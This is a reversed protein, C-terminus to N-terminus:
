EEEIVGIYPLNRYKQDFDLGYGVVFSDPIVFGTYEVRADKIERRAPKDLLVATKVSKAGHEEFVKRLMTLTRGSDIIDEAILVHRGSVDEDVDKKFKLFGTSKTGSGYSSVSVFDMTVPLTLRKVLDCTFFVGGKLVGVVLVPEGNYDRNIEEAMERIRKVITEEDYLVTIRSM